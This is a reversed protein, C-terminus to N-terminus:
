DPFSQTAPRRPLPALYEFPPTPARPAFEPPPRPAPPSGRFAPPPPVTCPTQLPTRLLALVWDPLTPAPALPRDRRPTPARPTRFAPPPSLRGPAPPPPPAPLPTLYELPPALLEEPVPAAPSVSTAPPPISFLETFNPVSDSIFTVNGYVHQPFAKDASQNGGPGPVGASAIQSTRVHYPFNKNAASPRTMILFVGHAYLHIGLQIGNVIKERAWKPIGFNAILAMVPVAFFWLTYAAFFPVYFPQKEPFHRLSVLVAYCFWVYAAVQLGILGYGAPSEYTYLVQGPDFFEAEYILLVVHTLTYLTMYVSLKVSGAHSIRGRTVTFGKGLLILMLLFILFSSSFLLKALIKVSENGIGETAYQGWYICFFLLSLVEVGAAAMFMKYTTHLLQRGKLLYGFYCSLFFILIFILLFTVDTELIGFEDASFHRTWFSKGNTLVMEYELQLGDGGCKSLAIYWWRERVSRFSRGSSCSLYHTGEESVVQCGSWAYQTTLNIVQNNEPRIVSEKALCDKDGAKYVAPWQSPDDFYLLINQCCKAQLGCINPALLEPYRFRFDLRGYDSLFCFRTLFVWDEKSSLNGRVYKARARPPLSLLLLLLPPLLRRLAPARQPEM